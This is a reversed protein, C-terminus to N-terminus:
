TANVSCRREVFHPNALAGVGTTVLWRCSGPQWGIRTWQKCFSYMHKQLLTSNKCLTLIQKVYQLYKLRGIESKGCRDWVSYCYRFNHDTTGADPGSLPLTYHNQSRLNLITPSQGVHEKVCCYRFVTFARYSGGRSYM